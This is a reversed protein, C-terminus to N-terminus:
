NGMKAKAQRLQEKITPPRTSVPQAAFHSSKRGQIAIITDLGEETLRNERVLQAVEKSSIGAQIAKVLLPHSVGLVKILSQSRHWDESAHFLSGSRALAKLDDTSLGAVRADIIKRDAGSGLARKVEDMNTNAGFRMGM